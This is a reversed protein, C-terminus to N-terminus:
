VHIRRFIIIISQQSNFLCISRTQTELILMFGQLSWSFVSAEWPPRSLLLYLWFNQLLTLFAQPYYIGVWFQLARPLHFLLLLRFYGSYLESSTSAKVPSLLWPPTGTAHLLLESIYLCWHILFLLSHIVNVLMMSVESSTKTSRTEESRIALAM